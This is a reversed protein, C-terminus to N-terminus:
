RADRYEVIAHLVGQVRAPYSSPGGFQQEHEPAGQGFWGSGEIGGTKRGPQLNVEPGRWKQLSRDFQDIFEKDMHNQRARAMTTQPDITRPPILAAPTTFQNVGPPGLEVAPLSEPLTPISHLTAPPPTPLSPSPIPPTALKVMPPPITPAAVPPPAPAPQAPVPSPAPAAKPVPAEKVPPLPPKINLTISRRPEEVAPPPAPTTSSRGGEKKAKSKGKSEQTGLKSKPFVGTAINTKWAHNVQDELQKADTWIQSGEENDLSM